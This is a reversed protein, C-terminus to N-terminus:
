IEDPTEFSYVLNDTKSSTSMQNASLDVLEAVLDLDLLALQFAQSETIIDELRLQFELM